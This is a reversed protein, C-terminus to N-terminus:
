KCGDKHFAEDNIHEYEPGVNVYETMSFACHKYISTYEANCHM